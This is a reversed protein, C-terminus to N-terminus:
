TSLIDTVTLGVQFLTHKLTSINLLLWYNSGTINFVEMLKEKSINHFDQSWKIFWQQGCKSLYQELLQLSFDKAPLAITNTM